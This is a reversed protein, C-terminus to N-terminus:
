ATARTAERRRRMYERTYNRHCIRCTARRGKRVILDQGALEHGNGCHTPPPFARAMNEARTVPELHKPNCCARNRCLHDIELGEAIPAVFEEYSLRHVGQIRGDVRMRGYGDSLVGTWRWCGEPTVDIGALIRDRVSIRKTM